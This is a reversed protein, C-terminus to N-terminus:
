YSFKKAVEEIKTSDYNCKNGCRKLSINKLKKNNRECWGSMVLNFRAEKLISDIALEVEFNASLCAERIHSKDITFGANECASNIKKLCNDASLSM